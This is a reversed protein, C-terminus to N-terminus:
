ATTWDPDRGVWAVLRDIAPADDATPVVPDFPMEPGRGEAPIGQQIIPLVRAAVEQDWAPSVGLATTLDWAHIMIEATYIALAAAGPLTAFPLVMPQGLLRDDAWEETQTKITAAWEAALQDTAV